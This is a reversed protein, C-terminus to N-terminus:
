GGSSKLSKVDVRAPYIERAGDISFGGDVVIDQGNIYRSAPSCLFYVVEAIDNPVGLHGAPIFSTVRAITEPTLNTRTMRTDIYGPIVANVRIGSPALELALSRVCGILAHKSTVYALRQTRALFGYLSSIVVVQGRLAILSPLMHQLVRLFGSVNSAFSLNLEEQTLDEFSRPTNLGASHVLVGFSTQQKSFWADISSLDALDFDTRGTATVEYGANRFRQCIASGIDGRGGLVLVSPKEM